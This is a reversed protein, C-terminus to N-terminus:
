KQLLYIVLLSSPKKLIVATEFPLAQSPESKERTLSHSSSYKGVSHTLVCSIKRHIKWTNIQGANGNTVPDYDQM